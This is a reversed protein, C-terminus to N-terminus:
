CLCYYDDEDDRWEATDVDFFGDREDYDLFESGTAQAYYEWFDDNEEIVVDTWHPTPELGDDGTEAFAAAAGVLRAYTMEGADDDVDDNMRLVMAELRRVAAATEEDYILAVLRRAEWPELDPARLRDLDATQDCGADQLADALLPAVAGYDGSARAAACLQVVTPTRWQPNM